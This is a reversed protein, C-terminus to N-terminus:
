PGLREGEPSFVALADGLKLGEKAITGRHLEVVTQAKQMPAYTPCPEARCPPVDHEAHVVRGEASLWVIDIAFNVNKMWFSLLQPEDFFFVMARDPPFEADSRFMLGRSREPPTTMLEAELRTGSPLVVYPSSPAKAAPEQRTTTTTESPAPAATASVALFAAAGCLLLRRM